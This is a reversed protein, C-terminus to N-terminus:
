KGRRYPKRGTLRREGQAVDTTVVVGPGVLADPGVKVGPMFSVNVGTRCHNGMIVGLKDRGTDVAVGDIKVPVNKEDLRWNATITGAGFNCDEGVISDGLYNMHTWCRRGLYSGKIETSFGIVCDDGIHSHGRVLCNNGIVSNRGIYAPGRVVANEMVRVNEAIVVKGDITASPSISASPSIHPQSKDLFHRVADLVHWPYKIATWLGGYAIVGVKERGALASVAREYTDDDGAPENRVADLIKEPDTYLHVVLNILNSPEKGEGPKEMIRKLFGRSDTVLYGGPFYDKVERTLIYATATGSQRAEKLLTYASVDFIDNPNVIILESDILGVASKIADAMGLPKDQMAISVRVGKVRGAVEEVQSRNDPSAVIVFESLGAQRATDIQHELLTKGLFDLLFKGQTLPFM